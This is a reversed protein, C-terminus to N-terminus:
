VSRARSRRPTSPAGGGGAGGARGGGGGGGRARPPGGGGGGGGALEAGRRRGEGLDLQGQAPLGQAVLDHQPRDRDVAGKVEDNEAEKRDSHEQERAVLGVKMM